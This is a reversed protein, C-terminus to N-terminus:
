RVPCGCRGRGVSYIGPGTGEAGRSAWEMVRSHLGRGAAQRRGAPRIRRRGAAPVMARCQVHAEPVDPSAFGRPHPRQRPPLAPRPGARPGLRRRRVKGDDSRNRLLLHVRGEDYPPTHQEDAVFFPSVGRTIPHAPTSSRSGSGSWRAMARHVPRGGPRSLPRESSVTGDRQAPQPVGRRGGRVGVVAREQEPTM